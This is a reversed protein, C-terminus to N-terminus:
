NESTVSNGEIIFLFIFRSRDIALTECPKLFDLTRNIIEFPIFGINLNHYKNKSGIASFRTDYFSTINTHKSLRTSRKLNMSNCCVIINVKILKPSSYLLITKVLQAGFYETAEHTIQYFENDKHKLSDIELGFATTAIVDNTYRTFGEKM